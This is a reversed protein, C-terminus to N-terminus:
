GKRVDIRNDENIEQLAQKIRKEQYIQSCFPNPQFLGEHVKSKHSEGTAQEYYEILRNNMKKAMILAEIVKTRVEGDSISWYIERLVECITRISYVRILDEYLEGYAEKLRENDTVGNERSLQM